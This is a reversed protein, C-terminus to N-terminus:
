KSPTIVLYSFLRYKHAGAKKKNITAMTSEYMKPKQNWGTLKADLINNGAEKMRFSMIAAKIRM